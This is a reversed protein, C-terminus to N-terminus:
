FECHFHITGRLQTNEEVLEIVARRERVLSNRLDNLDQQTQDLEDEYEVLGDELKKREQALLEVKKLRNLISSNQNRQLGQIRSRYFKLLSPTLELDDVDDMM